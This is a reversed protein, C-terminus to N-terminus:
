WMMSGKTLFRIFSDLCRAPIPSWGWPSPNGPSVFEKRGDVNLGRRRHAESVSSVPPRLSGGGWHRGRIRSIYPGKVKTQGCIFEEYRM